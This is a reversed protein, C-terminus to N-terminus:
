DGLLEEVNLQRLHAYDVFATPLSLLEEIREQHNRLHLLKDHAWVAGDPNLPGMRNKHADALIAATRQSDCHNLVGCAPCIAQFGPRGDPFPQSLTYPGPRVVVEDFETLQVRAGSWNGM